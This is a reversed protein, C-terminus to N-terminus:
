RVKQKKKGPRLVSRTSKSTRMFNNRTGGKGHDMFPEINFNTYLYMHGGIAELNNFNSGWSGRSSPPSPYVPSGGEIHSYNRVTALQPTKAQLHNLFIENANRGRLRALEKRERKDWGAKRVAKRFESKTRETLPRTPSNILEYRLGNTSPPNSAAYVIDDRNYYNSTIRGRAPRIGERPLFSAIRKLVDNPLQSFDPRRRQQRRTRESNM